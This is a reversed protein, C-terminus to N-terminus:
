IRRRLIFVTLYLALTAMNRREQGLTFVENLTLRGNLEIIYVTANFAMICHNLLKNTLDCISVSYHCWSILQVHTSLFKVIQHAFDVHAPRCYFALELNIQVIPESESM